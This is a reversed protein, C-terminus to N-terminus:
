LSKMFKDKMITLKERPRMLGKRFGPKSKIEIFFSGKHNLAYKVAKKIEILRSCYFTKKYGAEKAIRYFNIKNGATKQAGVSDHTENNILIHIANLNQSFNIQSGLHMLSAGDGDFCVIKKNKKAIAIGNAISVAHGMGGVCYFNNIKEKQRNLEMLERSLVGTTSVTNINKPLAKIITKLIEERSLFYNSEKFDNKKSKLFSDKRILLAVPISNKVSFKKLTKIAKKYDSNKDLIKYRIKLTRLLDETILGQEIHQPEDKVSKKKKIEGRWGILFFMPIKFVNKNILSVIPNIANGLGSNQLYILPLKKTALYYGIGVAVAAGENISSLHNKKTDMLNCFGSMLSDPVGTFFSIGNKEFIKIFKKPDIM